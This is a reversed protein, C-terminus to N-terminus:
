EEEEVYSEELRASTHMDMVNTATPKKLSKSIEDLPQPEMQMGLMGKGASHVQKSKVKELLSSIAVRLSSQKRRGHTSETEAVYDNWSVIVKELAKHHDSKKDETNVVAETVEQVLSLIDNVDELESASKWHDMVDIAKM